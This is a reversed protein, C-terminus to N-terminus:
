LLKLICQPRPQNGRTLRYWVNQWVKIFIKCWFHQKIDDLVNETFYTCLQWNELEKGRTVMLKKLFYQNVIKIFKLQARPLASFIM